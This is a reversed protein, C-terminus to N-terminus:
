RLHVIQVRLSQQRHVWLRQYIRYQCKFLVRTTRRLSKRFSIKFLFLPSIILKCYFSVEIKLTQQSIPVLPPPNQNGIMTNTINPENCVSTGFVQKEVAEQLTKDDKILEVVQQLIDDPLDGTDDGESTALLSASTIDIGGLINNTSSSSTVNQNLINQNGSVCKTSVSNDSDLQAVNQVTEAVNRIQTSTSVLVKETSELMKVLEPINENLNTIKEDAKENSKKMEDQVISNILDLQKDHEAELESSSQHTQISIQVPLQNKAATELPMFGRMTSSGSSTPTLTVVSTTGMSHSSKPTTTTTTTDVLKFSNRKESQDILTTLDTFGKTKPSTMVQQLIFYKKSNLCTM